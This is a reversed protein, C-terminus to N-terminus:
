SSQEDTKVTEVPDVPTEKPAQVQTGFLFGLATTLTMVLEPSSDRGTMQLSVIGSLCFIIIIISGWLMGLAAKGTIM